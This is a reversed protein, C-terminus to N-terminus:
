PRWGLDQAPAALAAEAAAALHDPPLSTPAPRGDDGLCTLLTTFGIARAAAGTTWRGGGREDAQLRAALGSLDPWAVAPRHMTRAWSHRPADLCCRRGDAATEILLQFRRDGCHPALAWLPLDDAAHVVGFQDWAHGLRREWAVVALHPHLRVGGAIAASAAEVQTTQADREPDPLAAEALLRGGLDCADDVAAQPAGAHARLLQHVRLLLRFATPGPWACFDGAEAAAELLPGQTQALDPRCVALLALLGDADLHNNCAIPFAALWAPRRAAQVALGTASDAVLGTPPPPTGPWHSLYAAAQPPDGDVALSGPPAVADAAVVRAIM